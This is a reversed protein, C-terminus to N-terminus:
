FFPFFMQIQEAVVQKKGDTKKLFSLDDKSSCFIGFYVIKYKFMQLYEFCYTFQLLNKIDSSYNTFTSCRGM